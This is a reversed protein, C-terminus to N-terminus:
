RPDVALKRKGIETFHKGAFAFASASNSKQNAAHGTYGKGLQITGGNPHKGLVADLYMNGHLLRTAPRELQM